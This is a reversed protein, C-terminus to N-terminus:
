RGCWQVPDEPDGNHRIEFYLAPDDLGGTNGVRGIVDGATVVDGPKKLLAENHGYLSMYGDGHDIILLLGLNRFWDAFVVKGISIARVDTGAEAGITVGHSRLRGGKRLTGFASLLHGDLPWKLTGKLSNFPPVDEFLKVVSEESRIRDILISLERENKQLLQLEQDKQSIYAQMRNVIEGRSQLAGSLEALKSEQAARLGDLQATERGISRQLDALQTLSARIRHIRDVRARNLYDHYAMVRGILAPDEQNLLLKLFDNQGTMYAARVQQGLYKRQQELQQRLGDAQLKLADLRASHAARDNEIQQLRTRVELASAEAQQLESMMGDVETQAAKITSEVDRIRARVNELEQENGPDDQQPAGEEAGAPYPQLVAIALAAARVLGTVM